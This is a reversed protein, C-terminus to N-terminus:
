ICFLSVAFLLFLSYFDTVNEVKEVVILSLISTVLSFESLIPTAKLVICIIEDTMLKFKNTCYVHIFELQHNCNSNAQFHKSITNWRKM